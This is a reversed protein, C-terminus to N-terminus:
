DNSFDKVWRAPGNSVGTLTYGTSSLPVRFSLREREARQISKEDWERGTVPDIGTYKEAPKAM